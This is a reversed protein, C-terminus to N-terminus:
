RVLTLQVFFEVQYWSYWSMNQVPWCKTRTKTADAAVSSSAFTAETGCTSVLEVLQYAWSVSQLVCRRADDHDSTALATTRASM